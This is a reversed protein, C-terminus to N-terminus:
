AHDSQYHEETTERHSLVFMDKRAHEGTGIGIGNDTVSITVAEEGTVADIHMRPNVDPTSTSSPM